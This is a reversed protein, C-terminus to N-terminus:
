HGDGITCLPLCTYLIPTWLAEGEQIYHVQRDAWLNFVSGFVM